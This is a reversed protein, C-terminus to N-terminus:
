VPELASPVARAAPPTSCCSRAALRALARTCAAPRPGAPSRRPWPTAPSGGGRRSSCACRARSPGPAWRRAPRGAARGGAVGDISQVFGGGYRTAVKANRTLLSMVTEEGHVRPASWSGLAVAGFDSTVTLQVGSPTKGAGIGCGAAAVALALAALLGARRVRAPAAEPAGTTRRGSGTALLGDGSASSSM